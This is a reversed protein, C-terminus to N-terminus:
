FWRGVALSLSWVMDANGYGRHNQANIEPAGATLEDEEIQSYYGGIGVDQAIFWQDCFSFRIGYGILTTLINERNIYKYELYSQTNPNWQTGSWRDIIHQYTATFYLYLAIKKANLNPQFTGKLQVGTLKPFRNDTSSIDRYIMFTPGMQATFQGYQALVQPSIVAFSTQQIRLGDSQFLAGWQLKKQAFTFSICALLFLLATSKKVM